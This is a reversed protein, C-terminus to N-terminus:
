KRRLWLLCPTDALEMKVITGGFIQKQSCDAKGTKLDVYWVTFDARIGNLDISVAEGSEAYILADGAPNALAYQGEPNAPLSCPKMSIVSKLLDKDTTSPLNPISGGGMLVAWGYNADASYIVAKDSYRMRYERVARIVQSFSTGRPHLLRAHQRPALHQGGKPAYLQGDGQYWWYRIDILSVAQSRKPDSLIQDQVDKTCSLGVLPLRGTEQQWDMITDLWFQVFEVPGTYEQGILQIVNSNDAFNQLCQRIYARHLSTRVPHAADYFQEDMFIRKDGAYPPPEPFGTNNINNAPRWPFDAWHAAAELINHQFYNHHILVLGKRDCLDAFQKLRSWYWLNYKTLDYRSLGDWATGIGSRAFPQEYFPPRVNGNMRRIHQHDDRRRDYWLGYNHELITQGNALMLDTLENLDDTYGFGIRGPVFRTVGLGFSAAADPRISGRWWAVGASGGIVLQDNYILRGDVLTIKRGSTNLGGEPKTGAIEEIKKAYTSDTPILHRRFAAQIYDRLSEASKESRATLEEALEISPSTTSSTENKLLPIPYAKRGLRQQLQSAYLSYPNIFSNSEHWFGKGEFEGWCGFAWNWATPPKDCEIVAAQCQWLVSNAAAWGIGQGQSGRNGLRLANGDIRVNDYLVGCAWSEIPGSDDLSQFSECQVFANPGAACHGVSFDHRGKESWCRLFLTQQGMTFFTHRRYGGEESVPALSLCDEVTIRRCSEWIAVASGAFHEMAVQRVWIDEANEVTVAMWAHDEDKPNEPNYASRLRLNEVGAQYIRGPWDYAQLTAATDISATLPADITIVSDNVDTVVRDWVINRTGPKWDFYGKIGGGFQNMEVEEIWEQTSPRTICISDGARLGDATDLHIRYAGVPVFEDTVHRLGNSRWKRDNTGAFRLLTRRDTGAAILVTGDPGMGEGRLVVGSSKIALGGFVPYNGRRLLVAGRVGESDEPLAAVYDLAKQIRDTNDGEAPSLVVRISCDPISYDAGRYGCHSFDPIRNGKQDTGYNLQGDQGLTLFSIESGEEAGSSSGAMIGLILVTAFFTGTRKLVKTAM